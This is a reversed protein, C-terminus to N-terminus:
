YGKPPIAWLIVGVVDVVMGWWAHAVVDIALIKSLLSRPDHWWVLTGMAMRGVKLLLRVAQSTPLHVQLGSLYLELALPLVKRLL